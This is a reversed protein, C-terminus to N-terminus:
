ELRELAVAPPILDTLPLPDPLADPEVAEELRFPGVATRRISACHGGTELAVGLERALSRVYFGHESAIDLDLIPWEYSCVEIQHVHVTRPELTPTEGRRALQYARRGNIKKASFHPPQQLFSGTFRDALLAEIASRDPPTSVEIEQREGERDDTATFASLDIETRYRKPTRMFKDLIRTATGVGVVLVGTALPDLTGAHGAKRGTRRKVISVARMSSMKPPKDLIVIGGTPADDSHPNDSFPM